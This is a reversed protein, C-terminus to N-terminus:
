CEGELLHRSEPAERRTCTRLRTRPHSTSKAASAGCLRGHEAQARPTRTLLSFSAHSDLRKGERENHKWSIEHVRFHVCVRDCM